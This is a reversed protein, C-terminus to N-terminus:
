MFIVEFEPTYGFMEPTMSTVSGTTSLGHYNSDAATINSPFGNAPPASTMIKSIRSLNKQFLCCAPALSVM